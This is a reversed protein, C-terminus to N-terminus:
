ITATSNILVITIEDNDAANAYATFNLTVYYQGPGGTEPDGGEFSCKPMDIQLSKAGNVWKLRLDEDVLDRYKDYAAKGNTDLELEFKGTVKRFASRGLGTRLRSGLKYRDDALANEITLELSKVNPTIPTGAVDIQVVNLQEWDIGDFAVFTPTAKALNRSDEGLVEVECALFDEIEQSLMIKQINCGEYEWANAGGLNDADRNVHFTLGAPLNGAPTITHTFPGAGTTNNTGLAHRLLTAAGGEWSFQFKFGGSVSKKGRVKNKQSASRLAPKSIFAGEGKFNETLFELFLTPAVRTGYTTENGFGVWANHGFAQGM